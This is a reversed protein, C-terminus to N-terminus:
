EKRIARVLDLVAKSWPVEQLSWDRKLISVKVVKVDESDLEDDLRIKEVLDKMVDEESAYVWYGKGAKLVYFKNGKVKLSAVSASKSLVWSGM